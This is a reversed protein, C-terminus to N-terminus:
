RIRRGCFELYRESFKSNGLQEIILNLIHERINRALNMNELHYMENIQSDIQEIAFKEDM